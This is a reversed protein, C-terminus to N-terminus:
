AGLISPVLGLLTGDKQKSTSCDRVPQCYLGRKGLLKWFGHWNLVLWLTAMHCDSLWDTVGPSDAWCNRDFLGVQLIHGMALGWGPSGQDQTM